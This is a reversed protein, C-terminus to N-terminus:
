DEEGFVRRVMRVDRFKVEEEVSIDLLEGQDEEKGNEIVEYEVKKSPNEGGTVKFFRAKQAERIPEYCAYKVM